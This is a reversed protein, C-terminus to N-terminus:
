ELADGFSSVSCSFFLSPDGAGLLVFVDSTYFIQHTDRRRLPPMTPAVHSLHIADHELHCGTYAPCPLTDAYAGEEAVHSLHQRPPRNRCIFMHEQHQGINGGEYCVQGTLEPEGKKWAPCLLETPNKGFRFLFLARDICATRVFLPARPSIM